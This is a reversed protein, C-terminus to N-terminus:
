VFSKFSAQGYLGSNVEGSSNWLHNVDGVWSQVLFVEKVVHLFSILVFGEHGARQTYSMKRNLRQELINKKLVRAILLLCHVQTQLGSVGVGDGLNHPDLGPLPCYRQDTQPIRM